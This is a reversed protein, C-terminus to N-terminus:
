SALLHRLGLAILLAVAWTVYGALLMPILGWGARAALWTVLVFLLTPPMGIVMTNYFQRMGIPDSGDYVIWLGLTINIPMTAAIAAFTRSYHRLIGIAIILIISIIVPLLRQWNITM